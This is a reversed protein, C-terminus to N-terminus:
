TQADGNNDAGNDSNSDMNPDNSSNDQSGDMMWSPQLVRDGQPGISPMNERKRIENVTAWGNQLSTAYAEYRATIDGRLLFETIHTITYGKEREEKTLLSREYAVELARLYPLLGYQVFEINQHEINSFTARRLDYLMHPPVGLWRSAETIGHEKQDLLQADNPSASNIEKIDVDQLNIFAPRSRNRAGAHDREWKNKFEEIAEKSLKQPSIVVLGPRADNAYYASGFAQIALQEGLSERAAQLVSKGAPDHGSGICRVYFVETPELKRVVVGTSNYLKYDIGDWLIFQPEMDIIGDPRGSADFIVRGVARGRLIMDQVIAQRFSLSDVDENVSRNLIREVPHNRVRERSDDDTLKYVHIPLSSIVSSLLTVGRYFASFSLCNVEDVHEGSSTRQRKFNFIDDLTHYVPGALPSEPNKRPRGRKAQKPEKTVAIKKAM